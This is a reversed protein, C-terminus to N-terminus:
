CYRLYGNNLMYLGLAFRNNADRATFDPLQLDTAIVM